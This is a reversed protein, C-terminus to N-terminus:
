PHLRQLCERLGERWDPLRPAEPRESRLVSNAPRPAPRGLEAATIRRVRCDLGAEEFIAEAFDAWTCDGDATVHWLGRPLDLLERVGAALHGVYTPSGRQDDVVAVEDREAGLQLMTRVFNTSAWGFLWSTRVIWADEGAAAESQLKTRGYVSLPNPADSEVYPGRKSGDFVYDTSFLVLPAGLEAAHQTGGVNVAAADQPRTEAGDVDTWAAAHLVVDVEPLGSPPPLTIDWEAPTLPVVQEDRFEECLAEGLQGDAGTVLLRRSM